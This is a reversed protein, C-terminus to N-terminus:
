NLPMIWLNRYWLEDGHNQVGIRGKPPIKSYPMDWKGIPETLQSFDSDIVKFGNWVVIVHSEKCLIEVTNWEDPKSVMNRMPTLVDYIAGATHLTPNRGHRELVQVEFGHYGPDGPPALCRLFIGSNANETLKCELHLLFDDYMGETALWCAKGKGNVHLLGDQISFGSEPIAVEEGSETFPTWGRFTKGDFLVDKEKERLDECCVTSRCGAVVVCLILVPLMKIM